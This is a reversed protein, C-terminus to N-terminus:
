IAGPPKRQSGRWAKIVQDVFDKTIKRPPRNDELPPETMKCSVSKQIAPSNLLRKFVTIEGAKKFRAREAVHKEDSM